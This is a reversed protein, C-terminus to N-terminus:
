DLSLTKKSVASFTKILELIKKRVSSDSIKYYVKLLDATEKRKSVDIDYNPVNDDHLTKNNEFGDIFYLVDVNLMNAIHYLMSASVRNAGKEYKQVQQFTIGLHSGLKDQSIGLMSRRFKIRSGIYTDLSKSSDKTKNQLNYDSPM